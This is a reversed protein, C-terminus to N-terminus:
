RRLEMGYRHALFRMAHVLRYWDANARELFARNRNSWADAHVTLAGLCGSRSRSLQEGGYCVPLFAEYRQRDYARLEGFSMSLALRSIPLGPGPLPESEAMFTFYESRKRKSVPGNSEAYIRVCGHEPSYVNVRFAQTETITCYVNVILVRDNRFACARAREIGPWPGTGLYEWPGSLADRLAEDAAYLGTASPRSPRRGVGGPESRGPREIHATGACAAVFVWPFLVRRWLGGLSFGMRVLM